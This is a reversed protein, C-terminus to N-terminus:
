RGGVHVSGSGSHAQDLRGTVQDIKVDGSGSLSLTADTVKVRM